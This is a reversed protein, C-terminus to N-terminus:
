TEKDREHDAEKTPTATTKAVKFKIRNGREAISLKLEGDDASIVVKFTIDVEEEALTALTDNHNDLARRMGALLARKAAHLDGADTTLTLIADRNDLLHDLLPQYKM